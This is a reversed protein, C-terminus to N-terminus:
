YKRYKDHKGIDILLATNSDKWIFFIRDSRNLRITYVGKTNTLKELNLSPHAPNLLFLVIVKKYQALRRPNNKFYKKRDKLFHQFYELRIKPSSM